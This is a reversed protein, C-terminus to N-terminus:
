RCRHNQAIKALYRGRFLVGFRGYWWKEAGFYELGGKFVRFCVLVGGLVV